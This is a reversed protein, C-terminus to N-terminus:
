ENQKRLTFSLWIDTARLKSVTRSFSVIELNSAKFIAELERRNWLYFIRGDESFRTGNGEKLSIYVIGKSVVARCVQNIINPMLEHKIHVLAGILLVADARFTGFDYTTLDGVTVQCGSHQRALKALSPSQEFGIAQFGCKALWKLDRGSGCGIDVITAGVPLFAILPTLFGSPDINVTSDFYQRHNKEYFIVM